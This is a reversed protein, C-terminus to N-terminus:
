FASAVLTVARQGKKYYNLKEPSLSILLESEISFIDISDIWDKGHLGLYFRSHRRTSRNPEQTRGIYHSVGQKQITNGSLTAETYAFSILLVLSLLREGTLM